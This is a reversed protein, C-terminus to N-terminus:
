SKQAVNLIVRVIKGDEITFRTCLPTHMPEGTPYTGTYTCFLYIVNAILRTDIETVAFGDIAAFREQLLRRGALMTEVDAPQDNPIEPEHRVDVIPAWYRALVEQYAAEDSTFANHIEDRIQQVIEETM